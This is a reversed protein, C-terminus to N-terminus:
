RIIVVPRCWVVLFSSRSTVHGQPTCAVQVVCRTGRVQDKAIDQLLVAIAQDETGGHELVLASESLLHSLCSTTGKRVDNRHVHHAHEVVRRYCETVFPRPASTMIAVGDSRSVVM